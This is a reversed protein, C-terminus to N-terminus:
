AIYYRSDHYGIVEEHMMERIIKQIAESSFELKQELENLSAPLCNLIREVIEKEAGKKRSCNDCHGCPETEDGFYNSILVSRCENSTIYGLMASLKNEEVTKRGEYITNQISLNSDPLREHLYTVLPLQSQYSVDIV